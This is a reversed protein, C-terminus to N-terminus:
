QELDQLNHGLAFKKNFNYASIQLDHHKYSHFFLFEQSKGLQKEKVRRYLMVCYVYLTRCLPRLVSASNAVILNHHLNDIIKILLYRYNGGKNIIISLELIPLDRYFHKCIKLFNQLVKRLIKRSNERSKNSFKMLIKQLSDM